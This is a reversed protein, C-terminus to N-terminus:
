LKGGAYFAPLIIEDVLTPIDPGTANNVLISHYRLIEFLLLQVQESPSQDLEQNEIAHNSIKAMTALNSRRVQSMLRKALLSGQSFEQVSARVFENNVHSGYNEYYHGLAILDSRLSGTNIAIDYPPESFENATIADHVLEFVSDWRRYLVTRSTKAERAIQAFSTKNYGDRELIRLTTEYITNELQDGRRRKDAMANNYCM